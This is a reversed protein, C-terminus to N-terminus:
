PAALVVDVPQGPHLGSGPAPRAEILFVLKARAERSYIVPPTYEAEPAIFVIRAPVGAGCGDCSVRVEQGLGLRALMPEPVFFRVKVNGPPLLSVVPTGAPVFEGEVFLTDAVLADAPAKLTRQGLRWEAQRVEARVAAAAAEAAAIQDARAPLRALEIEAALEALRAQDRQYETLSQDLRDESIVREARLQKQRKYQAESYRLSAEAQARQALLADIEPTRKGERLDALTAEAQGLRARAQALRAEEDEADLLAVVSGAKVRDGRAVRLESLRGGEPAALRAYEGEVYGHLVPAADAALLMMGAVAVAPAWALASIM